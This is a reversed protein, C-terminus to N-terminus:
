TAAARKAATAATGGSLLRSAEVTLEAISVRGRAEILSALAELEAPTVSVYKGRDDVVGSLRGDAELSRIRALVDVTRMGFEAALEELLVVKRSQANPPVRCVTILVSLSCSAAL